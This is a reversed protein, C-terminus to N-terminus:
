LKSTARTDGRGILTRLYDRGISETPAFIKVPTLMESTVAFTSGVRARM